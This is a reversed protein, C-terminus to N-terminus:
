YLKIETQQATFIERLVKGCTIEHSLAAAKMKYISILEAVQHEKPFAGSELMKIASEYKAKKQNILEIKKEILKEMISEKQKLHYMYYITLLIWKTFCQLIDTLIMVGLIFFVIVLAAVISGSSMGYIFAEPRGASQAATIVMATQFDYM